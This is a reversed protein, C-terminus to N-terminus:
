FFGRVDGNATEAEELLQKMTDPKYGLEKAVDETTAGADLLERAHMAEEPNLPQPKKELYILEHLFGSETAEKAAEPLKRGAERLEGMGRKIVEAVGGAAVVHELSNLRDKRVSSGKRSLRSRKM